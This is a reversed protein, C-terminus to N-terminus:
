NDSKETDLNKIHESIKVQAYQLALKLEWLTKSSRVKFICTPLTITEVERKIEELAIM